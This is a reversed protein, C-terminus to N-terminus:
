FVWMNRGDLGETGVEVAQEVGWGGCGSGITELGEGKKQAKGGGVWAM